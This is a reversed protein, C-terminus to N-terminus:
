HNIFWRECWQSEGDQAVIYGAFGPRMAWAISFDRCIIDLASTSMTLQVSIIYVMQNNLMAM